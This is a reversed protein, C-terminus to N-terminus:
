AADTALPRERDVAPGDVHPGSEAVDAGVEAIQVGTQERLGDADQLPVFPVPEARQRPAGVVMSRAPQTCRSGVVPVSCKGRVSGATIM